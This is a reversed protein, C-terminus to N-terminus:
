NKDNEEVENESEDFFEYEKNALVDKKIEWLLSEIKNFRYFLDEPQWYACMNKLTVLKGACIDFENILDFLYSNLKM